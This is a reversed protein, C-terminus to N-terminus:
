KSEKANLIKELEMYFSIRAEWNTELDFQEFEKFKYNIDKNTMIEARAQKLLNDYNTNVKDLYSKLHEKWNKFHTEDKSIASYLQGQEREIMILEKQFKLKDYNNTASAIMKPLEVNRLKDNLAILEKREAINKKVQNLHPFKELIISIKKM